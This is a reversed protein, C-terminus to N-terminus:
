TQSLGPAPPLRHPCNWPLQLISMSAWARLSSTILDKPRMAPTDKARSVLTSPQANEAGFRHLAWFPGHSKGSAAGCRTLKYRPCSVHQWGGPCRQGSLADSPELTAEVILAYKSRFDRNLQEMTSEPLPDDVGESSKAAQAAQKIAEAGASYAARLRAQALRNEKFTTPALLSQIAVTVDKEDVSFIFDELTEWKHARIVADAWEPLVNSGSLCAALGRDDQLTDIQHGRSM